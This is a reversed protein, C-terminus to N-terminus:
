IPLDQFDPNPHFTVTSAGPEFEAWGNNVAPIASLIFVDNSSFDNALVEITVPSGATTSSYDRFAIVKAPLVDVHVKLIKLTGSFYYLEFNDPGYYDENPTYTVDWQFSGLNTLQVQGHLPVTHVSAPGPSSSFQHEVSTNGYTELNLTVISQGFLVVGSFLFVFTLFNRLTVNM